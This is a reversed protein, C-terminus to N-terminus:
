VLDKTKTLGKRHNKGLFSMIIQKAYQEATIGEELAIETLTDIYEQPMEMNPTFYAM